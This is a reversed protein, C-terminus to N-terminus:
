QGEIIMAEKHVKQYKRKKEMETKHKRMNKNCCNIGTNIKMNLQCEQSNVLLIM